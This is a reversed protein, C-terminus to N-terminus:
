AAALCCHALLLVLLANFRQSQQTHLTKLEEEVEKPSAQATNAGSSDALMKPCTLTSKLTSALARIARTYHDIARRFDEPRIRAARAGHHSVM